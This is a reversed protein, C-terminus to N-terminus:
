IGKVKELKESFQDCKRNNNPIFILYVSNNNNEEERIHFDERVRWLITIKHKM